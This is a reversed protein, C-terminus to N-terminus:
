LRTVHHEKALVYPGGVPIGAMNSRDAFPAQPDPFPQAPVLLLMGASEMSPTRVSTNFVCAPFQNEM